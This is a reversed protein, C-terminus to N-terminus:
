LVYIIIQSVICGWPSPLLPKWRFAVINFNLECRCVGEGVDVGVGERRYAYQCM